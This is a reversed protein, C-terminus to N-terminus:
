RGTMLVSIAETLAITSLQRILEMAANPKAVNSKLPLDASYMTTSTDNMTGNSDIAMGSYLVTFLNRQTSVNWPSM